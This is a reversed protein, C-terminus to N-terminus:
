FKYSLLNVRVEPEISTRQFARMINAEANSGVYFELKHNAEKMGGPQILMGYIPFIAIKVNYTINVKDANYLLAFPLIKVLTGLIFQTYKLAPTNKKYIKQYIIEGENVKLMILVRATYFAFYYFSMSFRWATVSPSSINFNKVGQYALYGALPELPLYGLVTIGRFINLRKVSKEFSQIAKYLTDNSKNRFFHKNIGEPTKYKEFEQDITESHTPNGLAFLLIIFLIFGRGIIIKLNESLVSNM